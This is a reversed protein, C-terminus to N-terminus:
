HGGGARIAAGASSRMTNVSQTNEGLARHVSNLIEHVKGAASDWKQQIAAYEQMEDGDWNSKVSNVFGGLDSLSSELGSIVGSIESHAQEATSSDYSQIGM